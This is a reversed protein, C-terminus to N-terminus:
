SVEEALIVECSSCHEQDIVGFEQKATVKLLFDM